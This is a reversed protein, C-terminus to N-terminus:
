FNALDSPEMNCAFNMGSNQRYRYLIVPLERYSQINNRFIDTVVLEHTPGLCFDKGHRDQLKALLKGDDYKDWRVAERWLYGPQVMPMFLEQAGARNMEERVIQEINKLVAYGFPLWNYIGNALQRIMGARLMLRHSPVRAEAPDEKLTPLLCHSLRTM